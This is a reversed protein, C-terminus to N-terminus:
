TPSPLPPSLRSGPSPSPSVEEQTACPLFVKDLKFHHEKGKYSATVCGDEAPSAEVGPGGPVGQQQEEETLPKLRCLVRINGSLHPPISPLTREPQGM